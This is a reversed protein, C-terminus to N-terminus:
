SRGRSAAARRGARSQPRVDDMVLLPSPSSAGQLWVRPRLPVRVQPELVVQAAVDPGPDRRVREVGVEPSQALDGSAVLLDEGARRDRYRILLGADVQGGVVGGSLRATNAQNVM